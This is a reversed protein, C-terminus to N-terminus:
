GYRTTRACFGLCSWRLRRGLSPFALVIWASVLSVLSVPSDPVFTKGGRPWCAHSLSRRTISQELRAQNIILGSKTPGTPGRRLNRIKLTLKRQDRRDGGYNRARPHTNENTEDTGVATKLLLFLIITAYSIMRHPGVSRISVYQWSGFGDAPVLSVM